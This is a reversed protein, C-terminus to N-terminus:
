RGRMYKRNLNVALSSLAILVFGLLILAVPWGLTNAFYKGTYYGIYGLTALTSVLLLTRSRVLTSVYILLGCEALLIPSLPGELLMDFTGYLFAAAGFFYWFPTIANHRSRDIAYTICLLSFGVVLANLSEDLKLWDFIIAIGSAGYFLAAFLLSGRPRAAFTLGQQIAMVACVFISALQPDGGHGYETMMVFLGMPQLLASILFLPTAAREYRADTLTVLGVLYLVFGAGLTIIVRAASGMDDWFMGIFVALGALIFIGGLYGFLKSLVGERKAAPLRSAQKLAADIDAATLGHRIALDLIEQLADQKGAPETPNTM